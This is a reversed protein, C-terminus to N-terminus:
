ISRWRHLYALVRKYLKHEVVGVRMNCPGCLLARLQGDKHSHDTQPRKMKDACIACKGKQKKLQRRYHAPADPGYNKKLSYWKKKHPNAKQWARQYAPRDFPKKKRM